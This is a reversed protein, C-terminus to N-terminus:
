RTMRARRGGGKGGRRARMRSADLRSQVRPLLRTVLLHGNPAPRRGRGDSRRAIPSGEGASAFARDSRRRALWAQRRATSLDM